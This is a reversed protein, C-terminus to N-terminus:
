DPKKGGARHLQRTHSFASAAPQPGSLHDPPQIHLYTVHLPKQKPARGRITELRRAGANNQRTILRRSKTHYLLMLSSVAWRMKEMDHIHPAVASSSLHSSHQAPDVFRSNPPPASSRFARSTALGELDQDARSGLQGLLIGLARSGDLVALCALCCILSRPGLCWSRGLCDPESLVHTGFFSSQSRAAARSGSSLSLSPCRTSAREDISCM